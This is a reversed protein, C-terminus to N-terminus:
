VSHAPGEVCAFTACANRILAADLQVAFKTRRDLWEFHFRAPWSARGCPTNNRRRAQRRRVHCRGSRVSACVAALLCWARLQEANPTSCTIARPARRERASSWGAAPSPHVRTAMAKSVCRARCSAVAPSASAAHLDLGVQWAAAAIDRKSQPDDGCLQVPRSSTIARPLGIDAIARAAATLHLCIRRVLSRNV